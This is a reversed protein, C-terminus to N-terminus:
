QREKSFYYGRVSYVQIEKEFVISQALQSWFEGM